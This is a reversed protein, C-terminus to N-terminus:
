ISHDFTVKEFLWDLNVKHTRTVHRLNPRRGTNIMRIVAANDEFIHQQTSQSNNPIDPPVHDISELVCNDSLSHSQIVKERQHREINGEALKSSSTGLVCEGLQLAPLGDMRSGADLSIIESEASIHSVATQKKCMWLFPVFTHSGFM